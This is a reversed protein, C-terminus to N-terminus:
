GLKKTDLTLGKKELADEMNLVLIVDKGADLLEFTLSLSREISTADVVNLVLDVDPSLTEQRTLKEEASYPFLSYVGPLDTLAVETGKIFGSKVDVTVGPFNGVKQRAGTLVNFLLSKGSNQNGVLVAKM